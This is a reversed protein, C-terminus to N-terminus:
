NVTHAKANVEQPCDILPFGILYHLPDYDSIQIPIVAIFCLRPGSQILTHPFFSIYVIKLM